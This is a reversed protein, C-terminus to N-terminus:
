VSRTQASEDHASTHELDLSVEAAREAKRYSVEGFRAVKQVKKPDDM